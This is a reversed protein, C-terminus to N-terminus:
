SSLGALAAIKNSADLAAVKYGEALTPYNFVTDVLYDVMGDFAMVAQGIHVLETAGTGLVHVGLVRRDATGVLLKLLGYSDGIIQGRALERYRSVGIEYPVGAETLEEETKGVFSIEPITYIGFPLLETIAQTPEGFAHRAALRGQEMSTSALSPFGIVDGVAYVHAVATRYHADVAIRGRGDAELGIADLGLSATDGQRGASYFVADAAIRKGSELETVTGGDHLEVRTVSEGFRFVVGRDRLNHRLGEVIEEDCFDLITPRQEVVTVKAGLAALMSAYEIGIVGAGVVVLSRPIQRLGLLGDSDIVSADDFEVGPPRSPRTGVAIVIRDASLRREAGSEPGVALTHPDLFRASGDVLEIHNRLLQDRIVDVEREIVRQTRADLDAITIDAKVRYSAGYMERQSMGTLYVVAERLTKSPITGTNVCVGGVMHRREIVAVRKGLKAGQVAAKQGAPGSGIVLLDYDYDGM